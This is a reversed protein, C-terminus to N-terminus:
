PEPQEATRANEDDPQVEVPDDLTFTCTTLDDAVLSVTVPTWPPLHSIHEAVSFIGIDRATGPAPSELAAERRCRKVQPPVTGIARDGM